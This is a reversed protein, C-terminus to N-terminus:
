SLPCKEEFLTVNIYTREKENLIEQLTVFLEEFTPRNDPSMDWCRLMVDYLEQSCHPPKGLRLGDQLLNHLEVIGRVGRYPLEGLTVIEWLLVGFSWVDGKITSIGQLAEVSMWLWPIKGETTKIYEGDTSIDRAMGFDAVKAVLGNGILVNRSALDRHICQKSELHKMGNAVDSAINLLERENLRSWINNYVTNPNPNKVHSAKLLKDLSGGSVFEIVVCIPEEFTCAGVLSVINPHRGVHILTELERILSMRERQDSNDKLRKVAVSLQQGDIRLYYGKNVIGFEGGGLREHTLIIRDRPIEWNRNCTAMTTLYLENDVAEQGDTTTVTGDQTSSISVISAQSLPLDNIIDVDNKIHLQILEEHRILENNLRHSARRWQKQKFFFLITVLLLLIVGVAISVGSWLFTSTKDTRADPKGAVKITEKELFTITAEESLAVGVTNTAKCRYNPMKRKKHIKLTLISMTGNQTNGTENVITSNNELWTILPKPSGNAACTITIDRVVGDDLTASVNRPHILFVPKMLVTLTTTRSRKSGILNNAECWYQAHDDNLTLSHFTLTSRAKVGKISSSTLVHGDKFWTIIPRPVGLAQCTLTSEQAIIATFEDPLDVNFYPEQPERFELEITRRTCHEQNSSWCTYNGSNKETANQIFLKCVKSAESDVSGDSGGCEHLLKKDYNFYYEMWYPMDHYGPVKKSSNSICAITVNYGTPLVNEGLFEITRLEVTPLSPDAYDNKAISCSTSSKLFVCILTIFLLMVPCTKSRKESSRRGRVNVM